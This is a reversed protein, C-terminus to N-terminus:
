LKNIVIILKEDQWSALACLLIGFVERQDIKDVVDDDEEEELLVREEIKQHVEPNVNELGRAAAMKSENGSKRVAHETIRARTDLRQVSGEQIKGTKM